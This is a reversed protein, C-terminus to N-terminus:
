FESPHPYGSDAVFAARIYADNARLPSPEDDAMAARARSHMIAVDHFVRDDHSFQIYVDFQGSCDKFVKGHYHHDSLESWQVLDDHSMVYLEGRTWNCMPIELHFPAVKSYEM